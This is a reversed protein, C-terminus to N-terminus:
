VCIINYISDNSNVKQPWETMQGPYQLPKVLNESFTASSEFQFIGKFGAGSAASSSLGADLERIDQALSRLRTNLMSTSVQWKHPPLIFTIAAMWSGWTM